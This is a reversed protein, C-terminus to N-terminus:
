KRKYNSETIIIKKRNKEPSIYALHIHGSASRAGERYLILEDFSLKLAQITNFVETLTAGRVVFDVAHGTLHLSNKVGNVQDNKAKDRYGSTIIIPM